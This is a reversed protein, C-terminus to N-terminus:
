NAIMFNENIFCLLVMYDFLDKTRLEEHIIFICIILFKTLKSVCKVIGFVNYFIIHLTVYQMVYLTNHLMHCLILSVIWALKHDLGIVLAAKTEHLIM